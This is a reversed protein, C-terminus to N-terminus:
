EVLAAFIRCRFFQAGADRVQPIAPASLQDESDASGVAVVRLHSRCGIEDKREARLGPRMLQHADHKGLLEIARRGDKGAM